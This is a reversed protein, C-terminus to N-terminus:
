ANERITYRKESLLELLESLRAGVAEGEYEIDDAHSTTTGDSDYFQDEDESSNTSSTKSNSKKKNKKKPM